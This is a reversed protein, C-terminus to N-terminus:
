LFFFKYFTFSLPCSSYVNYAILVTSTYYVGLFLCTYDSSLSTLVNYTLYRHKSIDYEIILSSYHILVLYYPYL